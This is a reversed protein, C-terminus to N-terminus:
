SKIRLFKKLKEEFDSSKFGSNNKQLSLAEAKNRQKARATPRGKERLRLSLDIKNGPGLKIVRAKVRNGVKLYKNVDKVFSDSIQSIHILGSNRGNIEVFAGFDTIRTIEAEVIDGLNLEAAM